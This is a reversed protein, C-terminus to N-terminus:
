DPGGMDAKISQKPEPQFIRSTEFVSMEIWLTMRGSSIAEAKRTQRQQERSQTRGTGIESRRSDSAPRDARGLPFRSPLVAIITSQNSLKGSPFVESVACFSGNRHGGFRLVLECSAGCGDGDRLQFLGLRGHEIRESRFV